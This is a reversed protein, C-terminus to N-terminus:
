SFGAARSVPDGSVSFGTPLSVVLSSSGPDSFTVCGTVGLTFHRNAGAGEPLWRVGWPAVCPSPTLDM